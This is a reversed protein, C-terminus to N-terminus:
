KKKRAITLSREAWEAFRAPNELVDAPIEYYSMVYTKTKEPYPNFPSSDAKVFDERNSDDVKLYAVDDAILGFMAGECYLGAGGFMKRASVGGWGSLQDIVYDVFEDSVAM